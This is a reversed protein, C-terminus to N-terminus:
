LHPQELRTDLETNALLLPKPMKTLRPQVLPFSVRWPVKALAM